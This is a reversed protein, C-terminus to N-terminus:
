LITIRLCLLVQRTTSTIGFSNCIAWKMALIELKGSHLHYNKEAATLTWSGYAIVRLKRNQEQYLIAGLGSESADTHLVYPSNPEPYATLPLDILCGILKELASQHATTWTVPHNPPPQVCRKGKAKVKNDNDDDSKLLDYIPKAISSFNEIYRRYFNLFGMLTRVDKMTKPLTEKLRLVPAVTSPDLTYGEASVIRGFFLFERKFMSCKKPKLKVGHEKLRQLVKRLHSIHEDFTASFVIIDDLYPVCMEDRLEGLCTEMFRQFSAPANSLGFPIMVWEYLGWPTIFATLPQSEPTLVGQHYTKGQELM